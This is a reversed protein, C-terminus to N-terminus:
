DAEALLKAAEAGSWDRGGVYRWVERGRADYLITTPLTEVAYHSVLQGEPDLWGELRKVGRQALFAGVKGPQGMDQSVTLVKLRGARAEALRDLTPLEAVCPACWTAWLNVLLPKGRLSALRLERGAADRFAFDPLESGRHSRDLTGTAAEGEGADGAGAAPPQANGGSERDCGALVLSGALLTCGLVAAKLSRSM